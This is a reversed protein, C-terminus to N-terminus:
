KEAWQQNDVPSGPVVERGTIVPNSEYQGRYLVQQGAAKSISIDGDRQSIWVKAGNKFSWTGNIDFPLRRLGNNTSDQAFAPLITLAMLAISTNGLRRGARNSVSRANM